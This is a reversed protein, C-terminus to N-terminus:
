GRHRLVGHAVAFNVVVFLVIGLAFFPVHIGAALIELTVPGVGGQAAVRPDIHLASGWYGGGCIPTMM